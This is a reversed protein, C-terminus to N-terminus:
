AKGLPPPKTANLTADEVRLAGVKSLLMAGRLCRRQSIQPLMAGLAQLSLGPQGAVANAIAAIDGPALLLSIPINRATPAM